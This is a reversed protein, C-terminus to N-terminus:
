QSQDRNTEQTNKDQGTQLASTYVDPRAIALQSICLTM